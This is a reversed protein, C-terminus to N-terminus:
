KEMPKIKLAGIGFKGSCVIQAKTTGCQASFNSDNRHFTVSVICHIKIIIKDEKESKEYLNKKTKKKTKTIQGM